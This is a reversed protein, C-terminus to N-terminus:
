PVVTAQETKYTPDTSFRTTLNDQISELKINTFSDVASLKAQNILIPYQHVQNVSPTLSIQFAVEKKLSTNNTHAPVSGPTWTVLGSNKDYVIAETSPSVAGLWTVYPPLTASVKANNIVNATNNITWMVTYTTAQEAKPPVPGTNTFPGISRVIRGSLTAKSSIRINRVAVSTLNSAVNNEQTRDSLVSVNFTLKPNTIQNSLTSKDRPIIVFRLHGTDGSNVTALEPNTQQSWVIDDTVSRFYGSDSSVASKDYAGGSIKAVIQLNSIPVSLNNTWALDVTQPQDFQAIHDATGSDTGITMNVSVFPKQITINQETAVYQTGISNSDNSSQTGVVFHFVRSDADSGQLKGHITIDRESGSPIDGIKWTAGDSLPTPDASIFTYGFPYSGKLIINKLIQQSNSKVSVKMDFEQGSTVENLTTISATIPSSNILVDYSKKKTFLSTSGKVQYTLTVDIQKQMNEEGFIIASVKQHSSAGPTLDGILQHYTKLEQSPNQPDITGAPFDVTMDVADLAISNKNVAQVDFSVPEGGPISVPGSITIEINDGSILNAGNFFLYAGIGVSIICFLISGILIKTFFSMSHDEYQHTLTAVPAADPTGDWTKQVENASDSFHLKRRTRVDPATRSYLSKKLEEIRSRDDSSMAEIKSHFLATRFCQRMDKTAPSM